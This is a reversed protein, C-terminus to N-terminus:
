GGLSATGHLVPRLVYLILVILVCAFGAVTGYAVRRGRWGLRRLLLVGGFLLWTAWGFIARLGGEVTLTELPPAGMTGTVLGVTLLPFGALVFRHAARDLSDLSPLKAQLVGRKQKLRREQFLYLVAAGSALLFLAAGCLNAFVHLAIFSPAFTGPAAPRGLAFTSLTVVLGIPGLILGLGHIRFRRRAVLYVTTAFVSAMSLFFHISYVPCAHAVLSAVLVYALHCLAGAGLLWTPLRPPRSAQATGRAADLYYLVTAAGYMLTATAFAAFGIASPM